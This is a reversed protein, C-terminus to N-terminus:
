PSDQPGDDGFHRRGFRQTRGRDTSLGVPSERRRDASDPRPGGSEDAKPRSPSPVDVAVGGVASALRAAQCAPRHVVVVGGAADASKGCGFRGSGGNHTATSRDTPAAGGVRSPARRDGIGQVRTFPCVPHRTAPRTSTRRLLRVPARRRRFPIGLAGAIRRVDFKQVTCPPRGTRKRSRWTWFLRFGRRHWAIVTEPKVIVLATRWETWLRSLGVWLWRDANVLQVRRPRSRELVQLQHRLALVELHLAARSRALGQLTLLVSILATIM